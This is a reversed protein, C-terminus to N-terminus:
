QEARRRNREIILQPRQAVLVHSYVREGFRKAAAPVIYNSRSRLHTVDRGSPLCDGDSRDFFWPQMLLVGELKIRFQRSM